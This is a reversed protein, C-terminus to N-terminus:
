KYKKLLTCHFRAEKMTHFRTDCSKCKFDKRPSTPIEPIKRKTLISMKLDHEPILNNQLINELLVGVVKGNYSVSTVKSKNMLLKEFYQLDDLPLCTFANFYELDEKFKNKKEYEDSHRNCVDVVKQSVGKISKSKKRYDLEPPKVFEPVINLGQRRVLGCHNCVMLGEKADTLYNGMKCEECQFKKEQSKEETEFNEKTCVEEKQLFLNIGNYIDHINTGSYKVVEQKSLFTKVLDFPLLSVKKKSDNCFDINSSLVSEKILKRLSPETAKHSSTMFTHAKGTGNLM